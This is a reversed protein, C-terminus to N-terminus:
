FFGVEEKHTNSDSHNQFALLQLQAGPVAMPWGLSEYKRWTEM